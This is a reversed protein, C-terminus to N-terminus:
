PIYDPRLAVVVRGPDSPPRAGAIAEAGHGGILARAPVRLVTAMRTCGPHAHPGGAPRPTSQTVPAFQRSFYGAFSYTPLRVQPGFHDPTTRREGLCRSAHAAASRHGPGSPPASPSSGSGSRRPLSNRPERTPVAGSPGTRGVSEFPGLWQGSSITLAPSPGGGTCRRTLGPLAPIRRALM